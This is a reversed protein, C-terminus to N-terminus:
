RSQWNELFLRVASLPPVRIRAPALSHAHQVARGPGMLGADALNEISRHRLVTEAFTSM